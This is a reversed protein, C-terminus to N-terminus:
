LGYSQRDYNLKYMFKYYEDHNLKGDNDDDSEAFMQKQINKPTHAINMDSLYVYGDRNKDTDEFSNSYRYSQYDPEAEKVKIEKTVSAPRYKSNGEYECIVDYDGVAVSPNISAVGNGNTKASYDYSNKNNKFTIKIKQNKIIDDGDTLKVKFKDSNSITSASEIQITPEARFDIAGSIFILMLILVIIVVLLGIIMKMHKQPQSNNAPKIIEPLSAGCDSCYKESDDNAPKGCQDCYRKM